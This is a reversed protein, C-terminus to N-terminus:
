LYLKFKNKLKNMNFTINPQNNNINIYFYLKKHIYTLLKIKM